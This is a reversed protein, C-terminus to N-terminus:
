FELNTAYSLYHTKKRSITTAIETRMKKKQSLNKFLFLM